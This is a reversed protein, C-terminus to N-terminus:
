NSSSCATEASPRAMSQALAQAITEMELYQEVSMTSSEVVLPLPGSSVRFRWREKEQYLTSGRYLGLPHTDIQSAGIGRAFSISNRFSAPTQLPLGYILSVVFPVHHNRLVKAARLIALHDNPRGIAREEEPAVTQLGFEPVAGLESCLSAFQSDVWEFRAEMGICAEQRLRRLRSLVELYHSGPVNFVPDIIKLRQVGLENFREIERDLRELPLQRIRRGEVPTFHQCFACRFPCGRKTEWWVAGGRILERCDGLFPSPLTSADWDPLEFCGPSGVKFVGPLPPRRPESVLAVLADEAHGRIFHTAGPFLQELGATTFTVSPGGVVVNGRYGDHRIGAILQAVQEENYVYAGFGVYSADPVEGLAQRVLALQTAAPMDLALAVSAVHCGHARLASLLSAHGLGVLPRDFRDVGISVLIISSEGTGNM